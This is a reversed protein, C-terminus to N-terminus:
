SVVEPWDLTAEKLKNFDVKAYILTTSLNKHGLMDAISKFPAGNDLMRQAVSHRFIHTGHSAGLPVKIKSKELHQRIIISLHGSSKIPKYPPSITLFINKHISELTRGNQLYDVLSNGVNPMLPHHLDYGGKCGKFEIRNEGWKIDELTLKRVQIGRVGYTALIQLIAYDRKGKTSSRDVSKLLQCIQDPKLGKPINSLRPKQVVPVSSTFDQPLYETIHCFRLFSRLCTQMNKLSGPGHNGRYDRMYEGLSEMNIHIFDLCSFRSLYWERFRNLYTDQQGIAEEVRARYIRLYTKYEDLINKWEYDLFNSKHDIRKSIM